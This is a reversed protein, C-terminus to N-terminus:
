TVVNNKQCKNNQNSKFTATLNLKTRLNRESLRDFWTMILFLETALFQLFSPIM